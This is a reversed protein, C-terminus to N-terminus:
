LGKQQREQARGQRSKGGVPVMMDAYARILRNLGIWIDDFQSQLAEILQKAQAISQPKHRRLCEANLIGFFNEAM